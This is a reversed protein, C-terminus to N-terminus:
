YQVLCHNSMSTIIIEIFFDGQLCPKKTPLRERKVAPCFNLLNYFGPTPRERKDAMNSALNVRACAGVIYVVQWLLKSQPNLHRM